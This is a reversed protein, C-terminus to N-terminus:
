LTQAKLAEAQAQAQAEGEHSTPTADLNRKVATMWEDETVQLRCSSGELAEDCMRVEVELLDSPLALM